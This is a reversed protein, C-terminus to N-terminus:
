FSFNRSLVNISEVYKDSISSTSASEVPYYLKGEKVGFVITLTNSGTIEFPGTYGNFTAPKAGKFLVNTNGDTLDTECTSKPKSFNDEEAECDVTTYSEVLVMDSSTSNADYSSEPILAYTYANFTTIGNDNVVDGNSDFTPVLVSIGNTEPTVTFNENDTPIRVTTNYVYSADRITNSMRYLALERFEKSEVNIRNYYETKFASGLLDVMSFMMISLILLAILLEILTLGSFKKM